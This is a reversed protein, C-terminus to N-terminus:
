WEPIFYTGSGASDPGTGRYLVRAGIFISDDSNTDLADAALRDIGLLIVNGNAIALEPTFTFTYKSIQYQAPAAVTQLMLVEPTVVGSSSGTTVTSCVVQMRYNGASTGNTGVFIEIGEIVGGNVDYLPPVVASVRGTGSSLFSLTSWQLGLKLTSTGTDGVFDGPRLDLKKRLAYVHSKFRKGTVYDTVEGDWKSSGVGGQMTIGGGESVYQLIVNGYLGSQQKFEGAVYFFVNNNSPQSGAFQLFVACGTGPAQVAAHVSQFQANDTESIYVLSGNYVLGSVDGIYQQTAPVTSGNGGLTLGHANQCAAANGWVFELSRVHNKMSFNGVSGSNSTLAVGTFTVQRVKGDFLAYKTNDLLVGYAALDNGNWEIGDAGGGWVVNGVVAPSLTYMAGGAAGTYLITPKASAYSGGNTNTSIDGRVDAKLLVPTHAVLGSSIKYLAGTRFKVVGGGRASVANIANQIAAYSDNTGTPDAGFDEVYVTQALKDNATMPVSGTEVQKFGIMAAGKGSATSALDVKLLDAFNESAAINTGDGYVGRAYGTPISVGTGAATKCTVSFAGSAGNVVTWEGAINPFILNLNATLTGSIVIIPKGYQLPTLTVNASAMAVAAIGNTYDPVWGAATAVDEPDTVNNETLNLWYGLGDSRMIRAGKPYGGVNTDIAFASDYAYGGGANAWRIAASIEYLVGNMDLGSPPVGGASLPTRTLPPFGDALSAAGAVIGIQSDVPITRKGGSAAFPLVLKDPKNSSQM